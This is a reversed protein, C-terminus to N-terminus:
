IVQESLQVKGDDEVGVEPWNAYVHEQAGYGEDNEMLNQLANKGRSSLLSWNEMSIYKLVLASVDEGTTSSAAASTSALCSSSSTPSSDVASRGGRSALSHHLFPRTCLNTMKATEISNTNTTVGHCFSQVSGNKLILSVLISLTFQLKM